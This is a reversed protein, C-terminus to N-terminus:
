IPTVLYWEAETRGLRRASWHPFDSPVCRVHYKSVRGSQRATVVLGQGPRLHALHTFSGTRAHAGDVSVTEGSPAHVQLTLRGRGGCRSAYDPGNPDFRPYLGPTATVRLGDSSAARAHGSHRRPHMRD